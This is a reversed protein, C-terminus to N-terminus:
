CGDAIMIMSVAPVMISTANVFPEPFFSQGFLKDSQDLEASRHLPPNHDPQALAFPFLGCPTSSLVVPLQQQTTWDALEDCEPDPRSIM